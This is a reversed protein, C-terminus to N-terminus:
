KKSETGTLYEILKITQKHFNGPSRHYRMRTHIAKIIDSFDNVLQLETVKIHGNVLFPKSNILEIITKKNEDHDSNMMSIILRGIETSQFYEELKIRREERAGDSDIKRIFHMIEAEYFVIDLSATVCNEFELLASKISRIRGDEIQDEWSKFIKNIEDEYEKYCACEEIRSMIYSQRGLIRQLELGRKFSEEVFEKKSLQSTNESM